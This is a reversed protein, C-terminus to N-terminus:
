RLFIADCISDSLEMILQMAHILVSLTMLVSVAMSMRAIANDDGYVAVSM